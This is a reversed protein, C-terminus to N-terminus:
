WVIFQGRFPLGHTTRFFDRFSAVSDFGDALALMVLQLNRLRCGAVFVNGRRDMRLPRALKCLANGLFRGKKTRMGTFLIVEDGAVFPRKRMARITQRKGGPKRRLGLLVAKVFQKKFNLAPM